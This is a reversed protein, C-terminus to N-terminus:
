PSRVQYLRRAYNTAQNDIFQFHGDSIETVGPLATWESLPLSLDTTALVTFSGGPTNTFSFQFDGNPLRASNVLRISSPTPALLLIASSSYIGNVFVTALAYGPPFNTVPLSIYSNTSWNTSSLFVTQQSEISRLQVVPCDSSSNQFDNGGSGETQGRFKLGTLQLTTGLNLPSTCTEIRPQWAASFGLGSDYLEAAALASSATGGNIGGAILVQGSALLTASFWYRNSNLLPGPAWTGSVPDYLETLALVEDNRDMGGSVLVKGNPLLTAQHLSRGTSLSGTPTWTGTAPDFLETSATVDASSGNTSGGAVLVKGNPLLTATHEWRSVAMHNILSWTGNFPNYLEATNTVVVPGFGGTVLVQGNPLLTATHRFRAMKLPFNTAWSGTAPDYLESSNIAASIQGGAVLVQGNLLLTATHEYRPNNLNGTLQWTGSSPDYLEARAFNGGYGGAALVKGNPLLTSTSFERSDHMSGTLTWTELVPDYLEASALYSNTGQGGESLVQGIPLLTASQLFRAVQMSGTPTSDAAASDYAETNGLSFGSNDQGAIILVRGNPLLTATHYFCGVPLPNTTSWTGTLRDYVEVTTLAGGNFGGAVLVNGDPLVTATQEDRGVAM